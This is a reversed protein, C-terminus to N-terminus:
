QGSLDPSNEVRGVSHAVTFWLVHHGRGGAPWRSKRHHTRAPGLSEIVHLTLLVIALHHNESAKAAANEAVSFDGVLCDGCNDVYVSFARCTKEWAQRDADTALLNPFVM